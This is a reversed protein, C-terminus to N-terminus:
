CPRTTIIANKEIVLAMIAQKQATTIINHSSGTTIPLLIKCLDLIFLSFLESSNVRQSAWMDFTSTLALFILRAVANTDASPDIEGRAAIAQSRREYYDTSIAQLGAADNGHMLLTFSNRMITDRNICFQELEQVVYILGNAATPTKARSVLHYMEKLNYQIAAQLAGNLSGYRNYLTKVSVGAEDALDKTTIAAFEKQGLLYLGAQLIRDEISARDVIPGQEPNM